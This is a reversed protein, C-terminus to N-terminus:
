SISRTAATWNGPHAREACDREETEVVLQHHMEDREEALQHLSL